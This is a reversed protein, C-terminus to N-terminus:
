RLQQMTSYHSTLTCRAMTGTAKQETCELASAVQIGSPWLLQLAVLHLLMGAESGCRLVSDGGRAPSHACVLSCRLVRSSVWAANCCVSRRAPTILSCSQLSMRVAQSQMLLSRMRTSARALTVSRSTILRCSCSM